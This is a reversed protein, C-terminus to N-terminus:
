PRAVDAAFGQRRCAAAITANRKGQAHCFAHAAAGCERLRAGGMTSPVDVVVCGANSPSSGTALTIGLAAAGAVFACGVLALLQKDRRRLV